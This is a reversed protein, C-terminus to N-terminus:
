FAWAQAEIPQRLTEWETHRGADKSIYSVRELHILDALFRSAFSHGRPDELMRTLQTMLGEETNLEGSAAAARLAEDPLSQWVAYSLRAALEHGQVEVANESVARSTGIEVQYLFRPSQVVGRIMLEIGRAYREEAGAEFPALHAAVDEEDMLPARYAHSVFTTVFDRACELATEGEACPAIAALRGPDTAVQAAIAEAARSLAEVESANIPAQPVGLSSPAIY